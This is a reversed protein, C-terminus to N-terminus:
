RPRSAVLRARVPGDPADVDLWAWAQLTGGEPADVVRPLPAAMTWGPGTVVAEGRSTEPEVGPGAAAHGTVLGDADRAYLDVHLSAPWARLDGAGLRTVLPGDDDLRLELAAEADDASALDDSWGRLLEVLPGWAGAVDRGAALGISTKGAVVRERAADPPTREPVPGADAATGALAAGLEARADDALRGAFTGIRPGGMTRRLRWAGDDDIELHEDDEPPRGGTRSYAAIVSM